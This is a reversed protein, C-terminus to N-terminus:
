IPLGFAKWTAHEYDSRSIEGRWVLCGEEAGLLLLDDSQASRLVTIEDAAPTEDEEDSDGTIAQVLAAAESGTHHAYITTSPREVAARAVLLESPLCRADQAFAASALLMPAALLALFSLVALAKGM